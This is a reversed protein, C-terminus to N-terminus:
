LVDEKQGSKLLFFSYCRLFNECVEASSEELQVGTHYYKERAVFGSWVVRTRILLAPFEPVELAIDIKHGPEFFAGGAFCLGRSNIDIVRVPLDEGSVLPRAQAPLDVKVRCWHRKNSM